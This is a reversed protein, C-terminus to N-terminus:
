RHGSEPARHPEFLGRRNFSARQAAACAQEHLVQQARMPEAGAAPRCRHYSGDAQLAHSKVTDKFYLELIEVLRRKHAPDEVPTLLEVRRDLNRPMWDASSLYVREAGGHQFYFLRSHELFRDVISVVEIRDSLGEVGPQLCCIGRVNLRIEVGAASAEYLADILQPDVLSNMKALIRASKGRRARETERGILEIFRARLGIPSMELKRLRLPQSYGTITNFFTTADFALAADRTMLSVDGYLRATQENYNGTGFHMYRQIGSPERRIVQCLKAHTKLGRVGYIVQVGAQELARAWEINRAEDFRAKLEVVVAVSKGREAAKRLAEVVPSNGSTRYLTQKIALVDPDLAAQELLRLVPEFSEYPHHLLLDREALIEFMSVGPPADPSHQPEWPEDRLSDFGPLGTLSVLGSLDLPGDVAYVERPKLSLLECLFQRSERSAADDLELRVCASQKRADLVVTMETLLDLDRADRVGLDANRTLRFPVCELVPEGPFFRGIGHAVADELLLYAYGGRSPLTVFRGPQPGLPIVAFRDGEAATQQGAPATDAAALRVLLHISQNSLMPPERGDGVAMPTLLPFIASEFVQELTEAQLPEMGAPEVRVIGAEALLPEIQENFCAYQEAVMKRARKGIATLQQRPTMGAPDKRRVGQEAIMKLGGVRVMFFEDLNSSTIALFRLRELVPLAADRAENLVRQNFELWSLERNLYGATQSM